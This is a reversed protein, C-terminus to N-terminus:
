NLCDERWCCGSQDCFGSATGFCPYNGEKEQIARVAEEKTMKSAKIGLEQARKRIETVTM